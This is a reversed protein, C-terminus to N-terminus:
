CGAEVTELLSKAMGASCKVRGCCEVTFSVAPEQGKDTNRTTNSTINGRTFALALSWGKLGASWRDRTCILTIKPDNLKGPHSATSSVHCYIVSWCFPHTGYCIIMLSGAHGLLWPFCMSPYLLYVHLYVSVCIFPYINDCVHVYLYVCICVCACVCKCLCM